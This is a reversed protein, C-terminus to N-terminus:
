KRRLEREAALSVLRKVSIGLAKAAARIKRREEPPMRLHFRIRKKRRM